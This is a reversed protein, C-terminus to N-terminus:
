LENSIPTDFNIKPLIKELVWKTTFVKDRSQGQVSKNQLLTNCKNINSKISTSGKAATELIPKLPSDKRCQEVKSLATKVDKFNDILSLECSNFYLSTNVDGLICRYTGCKSNIFDLMPKVERTGKYEFYQGNTSLRLIPAASIDVAECFDVDSQCQVEAVGVKADHYFIDYIENMSPVLIRSMESNRNTYFVASCPYQSVFSSYNQKELIPTTKIEFPIKIHYQRAIFAAINYVSIEDYLLPIKPARISGFANVTPIAELYYKECVTSNKYCDILIFNVEPFMEASKSLVQVHFPDPNFSYAYVISKKGTKMHQFADNSFNQLTSETFHLLFSIM